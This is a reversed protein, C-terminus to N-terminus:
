GRGAISNRTRGCTSVIRTLATILGDREACVAILLQRGAVDRGTPAPHRFAAIRDDAGVLLVAPRMNASSWRVGLGSRSTMNQTNGARADARCSGVVTAADQLWLNRYRPLEGEDLTSRLRSSIAREVIGRTSNFASRSRAGCQRRSDAALRYLWRRSGPARAGLPFELVAFDLGDLAEGSIRASEITNALLYRRGDATVM